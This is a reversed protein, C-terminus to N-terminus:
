SGLVLLALAAALLPGFFVVMALRDRGRWVLEGVGLGWAMAVIFVLLVYGLEHPPSYNM